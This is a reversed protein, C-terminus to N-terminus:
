DHIPKLCKMTFSICKSMGPDSMGAYIPKNFVANTKEMHMEVLIKTNTTRDICNLKM